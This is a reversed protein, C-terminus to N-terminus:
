CRTGSDTLAVCPAVPVALALSFGRACSRASALNCCDRGGPLGVHETEHVWFFAGYGQARSSGDFRLEVARRSTAAAPWPSRSAYTRNSSCLDGHGRGAANRVRLENAKDRTTRSGSIARGGDLAAPAM